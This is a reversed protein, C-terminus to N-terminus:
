LVRKYCMWWFENWQFCHQSLQLDTWLHLCFFDSGVGRQRGRYWHLIELNDNNDL